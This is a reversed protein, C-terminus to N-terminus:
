YGEVDVEFQAIKTGDARQASLATSGNGLARFYGRADVEVIGEKRASWQINTEASEEASLRYGSDDSAHFQSITIHLILTRKENETYSIDVKGDAFPRMWGEPEVLLIDPNTSEWLGQAVKEQGQLVQGSIDAKGQAQQDPVPNEAQEQDQQEQVPRETEADKLNEKKFDSLDEERIGSRDIIDAIADDERWQSVVHNEYYENTEELFASIRSSAAKGDDVPAINTYNDHVSTNRINVSRRFDIWNACDIVVNGAIELNATGEDVYIGGHFGQESENTNVYNDIIVANEGFEGLTYIPAGDKLCTMMKELRNESVTYKGSKTTIYKNVTRNVWGWGLQIGTYPLDELHNHSIDIDNAFFVSIGTSSLYFYGLRQLLNNEIKVNVPMRNIRTSDVSYIAEPDEPLSRRDKQSEQHYEDVEGIRVGTGALDTFANDTVEVHYTYERIGIAGSSLSCFVNHTFVVDCAHDVSIQAKRMKYKISNNQATWGGDGQMNSFIDWNDRSGGYQFRINRIEIGGALEEDTGQINLLGDSAPIICEKRNPDQDTYLYLIGFSRDYYYEGEEDLFGYANMFVFKQSDKRYSPLFNALEKTNNRLAALTDQSLQLRLTDGEKKVSSVRLFSSKFEWQLNIFFNQEEGALINYDIAGAPLQIWADDLTGYYPEGRNNNGTVTTSTVIYDGQVEERCLTQRQGDLYLDSVIPYLSTDLPISWIHEAYKKWEAPLVKEGSVVAGKAGQLILRNGSAAETDAETITIPESVLHKGQLLCITVNERSVAGEERAVALAKDITRLAKQASNGEARDDGDPSVYLMYGEAQPMEAQLGEEGQGHDPVTNEEKKACSCALVLCVLLALGAEIRRRVRKKMVGTLGEWADSVASLQKWRM